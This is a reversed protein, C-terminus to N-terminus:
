AVCVGVVVVVLIALIEPWNQRVFEAVLRRMMGLWLLGLQALLM